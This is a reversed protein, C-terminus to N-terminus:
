EEIFTLDNSSLGKPPNVCWIYHGEEIKMQHPAEFECEKTRADSVCRPNFHCGPPPAIPSPVEGDIVFKIDKNTPDVKIRSKLLAQTYPHTPKSFIQKKTGIEVIRGLYMVAVQDAIHNVVSLNHTIFLFGYGYTRQLDKLLNLIQAQVSVDLASTPEDLIILEPNCALARAIIIRQKQGGSFEHPYRDLHEKKLSVEELLKLVHKRLETKKTIGLLNKLPESIIDVVKLRPNLSADPDQFVIQIKQRLFSSYEDKSVKIENFNIEGGEIDVLGLVAKALTSKGCGSEGVLGLTEGTKINLSVGDVAKVAGIQRKLLGGVLPYYVKLDKIELLIKGKELKTLERIQGLPIRKLYITKIILSFIFSFVLALLLNPGFTFLTLLNGVLASLIASALCILYTKKLLQSRDDWNILFFSLIYAPVFTFLLFEILFQVLIVGILFGILAEIQLIM